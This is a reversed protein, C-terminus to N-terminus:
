KSIELTGFLILGQHIPEKLHVNPSFLIESLTKGQHVGELSAGGFILFVSEERSRILVDLTQSTRQVTCVVETEKEGGNTSAEAACIM